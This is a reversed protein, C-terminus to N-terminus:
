DATNLTFNSTQITSSSNVFTLLDSKVVRNNNFLCSTFTVNGLTKTIASQYAIINQYQAGTIQLSGGLM